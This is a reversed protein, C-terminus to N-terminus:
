VRLHHLMAAAEALTTEDHLKACIQKASGILRSAAVPVRGGSYPVQRPPNEVLKSSAPLLRVPETGASHPWSFLSGIAASPLPQSSTSSCLLTHTNLWASCLFAVDCADHWLEVGIQGIAHLNSNNSAHHPCIHYQPAEARPTGWVPHRCQSTCTASHLPKADQSSCPSTHDM